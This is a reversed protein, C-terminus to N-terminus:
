IKTRDEYTFCQPDTEQQIQITYRPDTFLIASDKLIIAAGSSGTFGTLWQLRQAYAAIYEGQYEDAIPLFFADFNEKQLFNRLAKLKEPTNKTSSRVQFSQFLSKKSTLSM